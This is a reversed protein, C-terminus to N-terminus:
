VHKMKQKYNMLKRCIEYNEQEEHFKILREILDDGHEKSVTPTEYQELEFFVFRTVMWYFDDKKVGEKPEIFM